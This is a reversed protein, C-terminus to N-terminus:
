RLITAADHIDCQFSVLFTSLVILRNPFLPPATSHSVKWQGKFYIASTLLLQADKLDTEKVIEAIKGRTQQKVRDNIAKVANAADRFSVALHDAEYDKELIDAYYTYIPRNIDTYIAQDVALEVTSTNVNLSRQFAKYASRVHTLDAPLHLVTEMQKYTEGDAGEALLVLLSWVTFPSVIFNLNLPSVANSILQKFLVVFDFHDNSKGNLVLTPIIM